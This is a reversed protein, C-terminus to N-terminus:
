VTKVICVLNIFTFVTCIFQYLVTSQWGRLFGWSEKLFGEAKHTTTNPSVKYMKHFRDCIRYWKSRRTFKALMIDSNRDKQRNTETEHIHKNAYLGTEWFTLMKSDPTLQHSWLQGNTNPDRWSSHEYWTQDPETSTISHYNPLNNCLILLDTVYRPTHSPNKKNLTHLLHSQQTLVHVAVSVRWLLLEAAWVQGLEAPTELGDVSWFLSTQAEGVQQVSHWADIGVHPDSESGRMGLIERVLYAAGLVGSGLYNCFHSYFAFSNM